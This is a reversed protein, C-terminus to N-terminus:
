SESCCIYNLIHNVEDIEIDIPCNDRLYLIDILLPLRYLETDPTKIPMSIDHINIETMNNVKLEACLLRCNRGFTSRFDYKQLDLLNTVAPKTCMSLKNYFKVFRKLLLIRLHPSETIEQVIYRHTAFPLSYAQRVCVNWATFVKEADTSFLDWVNSGYM